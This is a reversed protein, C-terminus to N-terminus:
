SAPRRAEFAIAQAVQERLARLERQRLIAWLGLLAVIALGLFGLLVGVKVLTGASKAAPPPLRFGRPSATARTHATVTTGFVPQTQEAIALMQQPSLANTLTNEVWYAASGERWAITKLHEGAYFLSYTRGGVKIEETPDSLLPSSTWVSGQV